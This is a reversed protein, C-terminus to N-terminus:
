ALKEALFTDCAHWRKWVMIQDLSTNCFNFAPLNFSQGSPNLMAEILMFVHKLHYCQRRDLVYRQILISLGNKMNSSPFKESRARRGM